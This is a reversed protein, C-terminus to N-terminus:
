LTIISLSTNYLISPSLLIYFLKDAHLLFTIM